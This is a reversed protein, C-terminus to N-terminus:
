FISDQCGQCLGSVELEKESLQDRFKGIPKHCTVCIGQKKCETQSKGFAKKSLDDVFGQVAPARKM